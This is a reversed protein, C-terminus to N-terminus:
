GRELLKKEQDAYLGADVVMVGKEIDIVAKVLDGFMNEAMKSLERKSIKNNKDVTKM